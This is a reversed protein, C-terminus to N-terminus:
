RSRYETRWSCGRLFISLGVIHVETPYLRFAFERYGLPLAAPSVVYHFVLELNDTLVAMGLYAMCLGEASVISWKRIVLAILSLNIVSLALFEVIEMNLRRRSRPAAVRGAFFSRLCDGRCDESYKTSLSRGALSMPDAWELHHASELFSWVFKTTFITSRPRLRRLAKLLVAPLGAISDCPYVLDYFGYCLPGFSIM